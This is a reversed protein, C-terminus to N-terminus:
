DSYYYPNLEIQGIGVPEGNCIAIERGHEVDWPTSCTLFAVRKVTEQGDDICINEWKIRAEIDAPTKVGFLPHEPNDDSMAVYEHRIPLQFFRRLWGIPGTETVPQQQNWSTDEKERMADDFLLRLIYEHHERTLNAVENVTQITQDTLTRFNGCLTISLEFNRGFGHVFLDFEGFWITSDQRIELRSEIEERTLDSM